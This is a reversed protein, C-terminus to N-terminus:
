AAKGKCHTQDDRDGGTRNAPSSGIRTSLLQIAASLSVVADEFHRTDSLHQLNQNLAQELNSIEGTAAVVKQLVELQRNMADQNQCLLEANNSLSQQWQSWQQQGIQQQQELSRTLSGEMAEGMSEGQLAVWKQWQQQLHAMTENWSSQQFETLEEIVPRLSSAMRGASSEEASDTSFLGALADETQQDVARLLQTEVQDSMFQLFMLLISLSLALATTDFAVYLGAFLGQMAANLDEGLQQTALDGLAQTIGMVTGLFGLMPTAWIIIRVLSYGDYQRDADRESQYKMEDHLNKASRNALVSNVLTIVRSGLYSGQVRRPWCATEALLETARDVCNPNESTRHSLSIDSRELVWYQGALNIGRLVLAMIAIFFMVTTVIAVPHGLFYREVLPHKLPGDLLEYFTISLVTGWLIPWGLSGVINLVSKSQPRSM